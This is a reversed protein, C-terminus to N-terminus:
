VMATKRELCNVQSLGPLNKQAYYTRRIRLDVGHRVVGPFRIRGILVTIFEAAAFCCVQGAKGSRIGRYLAGRKPRAFMDKCRM